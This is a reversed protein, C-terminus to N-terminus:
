VHFTVLLARQCTSLWESQQKSNLTKVLPIEARKLQPICSQLVPLQIFEKSLYYQTVEHSLSFLPLAEKATTTETRGNSSRSPKHESFRPPCIDAAVANPLSSTPPCASFHTKPCLGMCRWRGTYLCTPWGHLRPQAFVRWNHGSSDVQYLTKKGWVYCNDRTRSQHECIVLHASHWRLDNIKMSHRSSPLPSRGDNLNCSSGLAVLVTLPYGSIYVYAM